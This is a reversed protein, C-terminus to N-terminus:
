KIQDPFRTKFTGFKEFWNLKIAMTGEFCFAVKSPSIILPGKGQKVRCASLVMVEAKTLLSRTIQRM